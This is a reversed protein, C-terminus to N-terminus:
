YRGRSDIYLGLVLLAAGVAGWIQQETEYRKGVHVQRGWRDLGAPAPAFGMLAYMLIAAGIIM